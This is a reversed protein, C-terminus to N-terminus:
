AIQQAKARKPKIKTSFLKTATRSCIVFGDYDGGRIAAGLQAIMETAVAQGTAGPGSSQAMQILSGLGKGDPQNAIAIANYFISPDTQALEHRAGYTDLMRYAPGTEVNSGLQNAEAMELAERAAKL